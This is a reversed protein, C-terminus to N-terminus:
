KFKKSILNMEEAKEDELVHAYLDMTTSLNSHGLITKLTQPKMNGEIARTAFTHRLTHCTIHGKCLGQEKLKEEIFAIEKGVEHGKVLSGDDYGFVYNEAGNLGMHKAREYRLILLKEAQEMMPITRKSTRTKPEDLVEKGNNLRILTHQIHIKKNEFDVDQWRLARAEGNRMGTMLTVLILAGLTSKYALETFADQECPSLVYREKKEQNRPLEANVVPNERILGIKKAKKFCNGIMASTFTITSHAYGEEKMDNYLDQIDATKIDKLKKKAIKRQSVFFQYGNKYAQYTGLKVTDKKYKELWESFWEELTKSTEKIYNGEKVERRLENLRRELRKWDEDYLTHFEGCHMFRGMYKKRDERWSIGKPLNVKKGM